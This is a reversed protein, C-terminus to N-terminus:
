NIEDFDIEDYIYDEIRHRCRIIVSAVNVEFSTEINWMVNSYSSKELRAEVLLRNRVSNM